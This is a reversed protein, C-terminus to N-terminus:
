FDPRWRLRVDPAREENGSGDTLEVETFGHRAYFRRARLNSQFTWLELRDPRLRKAHAVLAAGIGQGTRSPLVYLQDIMHEHLVLVGVIVEGTCAVWGERHPVVVSSVWELVEPRTHVMAPITDPNAERSGVLIDAIAGADPPEARRIRLTM